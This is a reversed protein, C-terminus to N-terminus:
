PKSFIVCNGFKNYLFSYHYNTVILIIIYFCIILNWFETFVIPYLHFHFFYSLLYLFYNFKVLTIWRLRRLTNIFCRSVYIIICREVTYVVDFYIYITFTKEEIIITRLDKDRFKTMLMRWTTRRHKRLGKWRLCLFERVSNKFLWVNPKWPGSIDVTKM